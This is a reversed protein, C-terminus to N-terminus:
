EENTATKIVTLRNNEFYSYDDIYEVLEYEYHWKESKQLSAAFKDFEKLAANKDTSLFIIQNSPSDYGDCEYSRNFIIYIKQQM